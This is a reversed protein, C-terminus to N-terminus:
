SFMCTPSPGTSEAQHTWADVVNGDKCKEQGKREGPDGASGHRGLATPPM